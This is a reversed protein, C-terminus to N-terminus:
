DPNALARLARHVEVLALTDRKCYALLARRLRSEESPELEGRAVRLFAAAAATGEAVEDLDGYGLHPALAPAV